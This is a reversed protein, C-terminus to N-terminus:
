TVKVQKFDFVVNRDSVHLQQFISRSLENKKKQNVDTTKGSKSSNIKMDSYIVDYHAEVYDLVLNEIGWKFFKLQCLATEFSIKSGDIPSEYELKITAGRCFPDFEKKKNGKLQARYSRFVSFNEIKNNPRMITYQVDNKKSYNTLFWDLLRLPINRTKFVVIDLFVKFNSDQSFFDLLPTLIRQERSVIPQSM